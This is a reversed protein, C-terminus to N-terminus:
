LWILLLFAVALFAFGVVLLHACSHKKEDKAVKYEYFDKYKKEPKNRKRIQFFLSISYSLMRFIGEDSAFVLGGACILCIGSVFFADNLILLVGYIDKVGFIGRSLMIALSLLM